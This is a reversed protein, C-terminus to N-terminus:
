SRRSPTAVRALMAEAQPLWFTMELTRYLAIAARLPASAQEWEGRQVYLTGLGLHCHAQLPGMDLAEALALAQRYHTMAQLVDPPDCRLALAGLLQAAHAQYGDGHPTGTSFARLHEALMHAEALRGSCLCATSLETLVLTHYPFSREVVVRALVQDVLAHAEAVRGALAYVAGLCSAALPFFLPTNDPQCLALSQELVAIAAPMDGQRSVVLGLGLLAIAQSYPQAAAEALQLAEAGVRRGEAFSGLEALCWDVMCRSTVAPLSSMGFHAAHQAGTLLTMVHQAYDLAQRFDGVTHYATSLYVQAIIQIDLAESTTGLALARQGMAIAQDHVGLVSFHMCLYSAIRGLRPIDHLREALVEAARLHDFSRAHEDLPRLAHRLDCRLDISQTLTEHTEPLTDLAALAQEFYAVAERYAARQRAQQGAYILYQVARTTDRGRVFHEALEAAINRAQAGYGAELRAGIQRHWRARRGAPVRDYLLERYLAHRFSYRMSVTGDPWDVLSDAQVFQGRRALTACFEEATELTDEVGAAVAAPTFADGVVSAAELLRQAQPPLQALQQELSQRLSDPLSRAVAEAEGALEWGQVGQQLVGQQILTDVVTVLFLPHGDTRQYLLSALATPWDEAQLRAALYTTVADTSLPSLIVETAQGYLQLEQTVAHVRHARVIADVPRYTGLVLLRAPDRRRAVSAIWDLTASDSWHLDELVLLLPREATLVEVAEALERLMREPTTGGGRRELADRTAPSVLAPLHVLWSPAYHHLIEVLRAGDPGRGLRGLAELVPMYAEGAGHQEICQGFGLWATDTAAVQAMWAEVLATKGLGAEGTVLVVQRTGQLARTWAQQLCAMEPERGVLWSPALARPEQSVALSDTPLSAQIPTVPAVFRYGRGRVTEVYQPLHAADGLAQRLTRICMALAAASVHPVGWVAACLDERTVLRGAHTVLHCLVGFTKATLPVVEPGRWLQATQVDLHFPAFYWRHPEM